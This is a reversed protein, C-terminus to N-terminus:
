SVIFYTFGGTWVTATPVAHPSAAISSADPSFARLSCLVNRFRSIGWSWKVLTMPSCKRRGAYHDLLWYICKSPLHSRICVSIMHADIWSTTATAPKQVLSEACPSLSCWVDSPSFRKVPQKMFAISIQISECSSIREFPIPLGTSARSFSMFRGLYKLGQSATSYPKISWTCWVYSIIRCLEKRLKAQPKAPERHGHGLDKFQLTAQASILPKWVANWKHKGDSRM